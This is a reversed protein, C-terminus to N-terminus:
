MYVKSGSTGINSSAGYVLTVIMIFLGVWLLTVVVLLNDLSGSM